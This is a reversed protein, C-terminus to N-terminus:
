RHLRGAVDFVARPPSANTRMGPGIASLHLRLGRHGIRCRRGGLRFVPAARQVLEGEIATVAQNPAVVSAVNQLRADFRAVVPGGAFTRPDAFDGGHGLHFALTGSGVASVLAGHPFREGVRATSFFTVRAGAETHPGSFLDSVALGFLSTLFGYGTLGDGDQAVEGVVEAAPSGDAPEGLRRVAAAGAVSTAPGAAALAGAGALMARRTVGNSTM